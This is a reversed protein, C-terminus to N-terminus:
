ECTITELDGIKEYIEEYSKLCKNFFKFYSRQENCIPDLNISEGNNKYLVDPIKDGNSDVITIDQGKVKGYVHWKESFIEKDSESINSQRNYRIEFDPKIFNIQIMKDLSNLEKQSKSFNVWIEILTNDTQYSIGNFGTSNVDGLISPGYIFKFKPPITNSKKSVIKQEIKPYYSSSNLSFLTLFGLAIVLPLPDCAKKGQEAYKNGKRDLDILEQITIKKGM